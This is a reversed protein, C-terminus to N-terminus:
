IIKGTIWQLYYLADKYWDSDSIMNNEKYLASNNAM